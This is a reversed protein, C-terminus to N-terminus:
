AEAEKTRVVEAEEEVREREVSEREVRQESDAGGVV